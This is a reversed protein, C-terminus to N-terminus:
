LPSSALIQRAGHWAPLGGAVAAVLGALVSLADADAVVKGKKERFNQIITGRKVSM